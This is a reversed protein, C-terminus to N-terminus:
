SSDSLTWWNTGTEEKTRTQWQGWGHGEVWCGLLVCSFCKAGCLSDLIVQFVRLLLFRDLIQSWWWMMWLPRYLIQRIETFQYPYWITGKHEQATEAVSSSSQYSCRCGESWKVAMTWCILAFKTAWWQACHINKWLITQVCQWLPMSAICWCIRICWCKIRSSSTRLDGSASPLRWQNRSTGRWRWPHHETWQNRAADAQWTSEAFHFSLM